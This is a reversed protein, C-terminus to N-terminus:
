PQLLLKQIDDKLICEEIYYESTCGDKSLVAYGFPDEEIMAIKVLGDKIKTIFNERSLNSESNKDFLDLVAIDSAFFEPARLIEIRSNKSIMVLNYAEQLTYNM